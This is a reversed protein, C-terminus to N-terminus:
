NGRIIQRITQRMAPYLAFGSPSQRIQKGAWVDIILQDNKVYEWEYGEAIADYFGIREVAPNTRIIWNWLNRLETARSPTTDTVGIEVVNTTLAGHLGVAKYDYGFSCDYLVPRAAEMALSRLWPTFVDDTRVSGLMSWIAVIDPEMPTGLGGWQGWGTVDPNIQLKIRSDLPLLSCLDIADSRLWTLGPIWNTRFAGTIALKRAKFDDYDITGDPYYQTYHNKCAEWYDAKGAGILFNDFGPNSDVVVKHFETDRGIALWLRVQQAERRKYDERDFWPNKETGFGQIPWRLGRIGDVYLPRLISYAAILDKPVHYPSLNLLPKVM